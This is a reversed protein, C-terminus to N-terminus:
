RPPAQRTAQGDPTLEYHADADVEFETSKKDVGPWVVKVKARTAAGLGVPIRPDDTGLFSQCRYVPFTQSPGGETRVTVMAGIAETNKTGPMRTSLKLWHRSPGAPLRNELAIPDENMAQVYVDVDGDDDWDGFAAGRCCRKVELGAGAFLDEYKVGAPPRANPGKFPKPGVERYKLSKADLCEFVAPYQDYSTGTREFLDIEKYVHGNAIFLDLDADLDFDYWGCGWSLDYFVSQGMVQLGRDIYSVGGPNQRGLFINNYDHSFNTIFIDPVGNQDIDVICAGMSAQANQQQGYKVGRSESVDEFFPKGKADRRQKWLFNEESDNAVYVDMLGDGDLDCFMSTFAYKPSKPLIKTERSVDRFTGDEEQRYLSDHQAVLGLPGCYADLGRWKCARGTISEVPEGEPLRRIERQRNVEHGIDLYRGVYLDLRGDGDYDGCTACTSWSAEDGALGVEEAVDRFTGNGGNKYLRCKGFNAVFLDTWGDGDYDWALAGFGWRDNQVGAQEAVDEFKGAGLNRWLKAHFVEPKPSKAHLVSRLRGPSAPDPERSLIYNSFIDGDPVYLDMRGDHDYDFWAPGVGVAEPLYEKVGGRGSHNKGLVGAAKTVDEFRFGPPPLNEGATAAASKYEAPPANLGSDRVGLGQPKPAPTGPTDGCGLLFGVTALVGLVGASRVLRHTCPIPGGMVNEM